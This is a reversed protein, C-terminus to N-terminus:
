VWLWYRSQLCLLFVDWIPVTLYDTIRQLGHVKRTWRRRSVVSGVPPVRWLVILLAIPSYCPCLRRTYWPGQSSIQWQISLGSTMVKLSWYPLSVKVCAIVSKIGNTKVQPRHINSHYKEFTYIQCIWLIHVSEEPNVPTGVTNGVSLKREHDYAVTLTKM